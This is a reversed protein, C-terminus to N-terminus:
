KKSGHLVSVTVGLGYAFAHHNWTYHDFAYLILAGGVQIIISVFVIVRKHSLEWSVRNAAVGVLFLYSYSSCCFHMHRCQYNSNVGADMVFSFAFLSQLLSLLLFSPSTCFEIVFLSLSWFAYKAVWREAGDYGPGGIGLGMFQAALPTAGIFPPKSISANLLDMISLYILIFPSVRPRM